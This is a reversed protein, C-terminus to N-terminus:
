KNKRALLGVVVSFILGFFLSWNCMALMLRFPTISRISELLAEIRERDQGSKTQEALQGFSDYAAELSRIFTDDQFLIRYIVMQGGAYIITAFFVLLITYRAARSFSISGQLETDRYKCVLLYILVPYFLFMLVMFVVSIINRNLLVWSLNLIMYLGLILGQKLAFQIPRPSPQTPSTQQM